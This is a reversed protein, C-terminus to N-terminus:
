NIKNFFIFNGLPRARSKPLHQASFKLFVPLVREPKRERFFSDISM